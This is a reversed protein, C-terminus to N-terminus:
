HFALFWSVAFNHFYKPSPRKKGKKWKTKSVKQETFRKFIPTETQTNLDILTHIVHIVSISHIVLHMKMLIFRYHYKPYNQIIFAIKDEYCYQM